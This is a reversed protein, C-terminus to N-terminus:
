TAAAVASAAAASVKGRGLSALIAKAKSAATTGGADGGAAAARAARKARLEEIASKPAGTGRASRRAAVTMSDGEQKEQPPQSSSDLEELAAAYGSKGVSVASARAAAARRESASPVKVVKGGQATTAATAAKEAATVGRAAAATAATKAVPAAKERAPSSRSAVPPTAGSKRKPTAATKATGTAPKSSARRSSGASSSGAESPARASSPPPPSSLPDPQASPARTSSANSCADVADAPVGSRAASKESGTSSNVDQLSSFVDDSLSLNTFRSHSRRVKEQLFDDLPGQSDAPLGVQQGDDAERDSPPNDEASAQKPSPPKQGGAEPQQEVEQVASRPAEAPADVGTEEEGLLDDLMKQAHAFASTNASPPSDDLQQQQQPPTSASEATAAAAPAVTASAPTGPASATPTASTPAATAPQPPSATAAAKTSPTTPETERTAPSSGKGFEATSTATLKSKSEIGVEKNRRRLAAPLELSLEEKDKDKAGKRASTADVKSGASSKSTRPRAGSAARANVESSQSFPTRPSSTTSSPAQHPPALHLATKSTAETRPNVPLSKTSAPSSSTNDDKIVEERRCVSAAAEAESAAERAQSFEQRQEDLEQRARQLSLETARLLEYRESACASAEECQAELAAGQRAHYSHMGREKDLEAELIQLRTQISGLLSERAKRADENAEEQAEGARRAEQLEASAEEQRRAQHQIVEALVQVEPIWAEVEGIANSTEAQLVQLERDLHTRAADAAPGTGVAEQVAAGLGVLDSGTRIFSAALRPGSPGMPPPLELDESFMRRRAAPSQEGQLRRLESSLTLPLWGPSQPPCDGRLPRPQQEEAASAEAEQAPTAAAGFVDGGPLSRDEEGKNAGPVPQCCIERPAEEAIAIDGGRMLQEEDKAVRSLCSTETPAAEATRLDGRAPAERVAEEPRHGHCLESSVVLAREVEGCLEGPAPQEKAGELQWSTKENSAVAEERAARLDGPAPQEKAAEPQWSTKENSLVGEERAARLDGPASQEKAAEPQFSMTGNSPVAEERATRLDGPALEEQERADAQMRGGSAERSDATPQQLRQRREVEALAAQLEVAVEEKIENRLEERLQIRLADAADAQLHLHSASSLSGGGEVSFHQQPLSAELESRRAQLLSAVAAQVEEQAEQQMRSAAAVSDQRLREAEARAAAVEDLLARRQAAELQDAARQSASQRDHGSAVTVASDDPLFSREQLTLMSHTLLEKETQLEARLRRLSMSRPSSSSGGAPLVDLHAAAVQSGLPQSRLQLAQSPIVDLANGTAARLSSDEARAPADDWLSPTQPSALSSDLMGGRASISASLSASASMGGAACRPSLMSPSARPPSLLSSSFHGGRGCGVPVPSVFASEDLSAGEGRPERSTQRRGAAAAATAGTGAAAMPSRPRHLAELPVSRLVVFVKPCLEYSARRRAEEFAEMAEARLAAPSSSLGSRAGAPVPTAFDTSLACWCQVENQRGRLLQGVPIRLGAIFHDSDGPGRSRGSDEPRRFLRLTLTSSATARFPLRLAPWDDIRVIQDVQDTLVGVPVVGVLGSDEPLVPQLVTVAVGMTTSSGKDPGGRPSAAFLSQSPSASLSGASALGGGGASASLSGAAAAGPGRSSPRAQLAADAARPSLGLGVASPSLVDLRPSGAYSGASSRASFHGATGNRLGRRDRSTLAAGSLAIATSSSSAKEGRLSAASAPAAPRSSSSASGGSEFSGAAYGTTSLTSHVSYRASDLLSSDRSRSSWLFDVM